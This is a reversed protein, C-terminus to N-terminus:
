SSRKQETARVLGFRSVGSRDTQFAIKKGDPSYQPNSDSATSAIFSRPPQGIDVRWINADFSRHELTM